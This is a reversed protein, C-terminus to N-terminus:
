KNHGLHAQRTGLARTQLQRSATFFSGRGLCGERGCVSVCVGERQCVCMNNTAPMQM